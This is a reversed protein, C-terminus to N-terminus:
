LIIGEKQIDKYFPTFNRKAWQGTTYIKTSFHEGFSWGLEYLRYAIREYDKSDINDKDLLVLIDWDSDNSANGRAHSGYLIIRADPDVSQITNKISQVIETNKKTM